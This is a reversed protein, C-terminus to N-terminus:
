LSRLWGSLQKAATDALGGLVEGIGALDETLTRPGAAPRPRATGRYGVPGEDVRQSWGLFSQGDAALGISASCGRQDSWSIRELPGDGTDLHVLLPGGPHWREGWHTETAFSHTFEGAADAGFARRDSREGRLEYWGGDPDRVLGACAGQEHSFSVSSEVGSRARWDLRLPLGREGSDVHLRWTAASQWGAAGPARRETRWTVLPLAFAADLFACEAADRDWVQELLVRYLWLHSRARDGSRLTLTNTGPHLLDAPIAVVIDQPLDGGGPIRYGGLLAAGNVTVDLPASGLQPGLKSVLARIKLTAEDTVGQPPVAFEVDVSGGADLALHDGGFFTRECHVEAGQTRPQSTSFDVFIPHM